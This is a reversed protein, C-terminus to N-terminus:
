DSEEELAQSRLYHLIQNSEIFFLSKSRVERTTQDIVDAGMEGSSLPFENIFRNYISIM